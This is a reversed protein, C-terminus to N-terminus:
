NHFELDIRSRPERNEKHEETHQPTQDNSMPLMKAVKVKLLELQVELELYSDRLHQLFKEKTRIVKVLKPNHDEPLGSYGIPPHRDADEIWDRVHKLVLQKTLYYHIKIAKEFEPMPNRITDIIMHSLTATKVVNSYARNQRNIEEPTGSIRAREVINEDSLLKLIMLIVDTITNTALWVTGRASGGSESVYNLHVRGSQLFDPGFRVDEPKNILRVTPPYTPYNDLHIDFIFSGHAYPTSSGGPIILCRFLSIQKEDYRVFVSDSISLPLHSKMLSLETERRAKTLFRASNELKEEEGDTGLKILKKVTSSTMSEVPSLSCALVHNPKLLDIYTAALKKRSQYEFNLRQTTPDLYATSEIGQETGCPTRFYSTKNCITGYHCGM